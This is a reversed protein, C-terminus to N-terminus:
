IHDFGGAVIGSLTRGLPPAATPARGRLAYVVELVEHELDLAIAPREGQRDRWVVVRRYPYSGADEPLQDLEWRWEDRRRTIGEGELLALDAVLSFLIDDGRRESAVFADIPANVAAGGPMWARPPLAEALWATLRAFAPAPDATPELIPSVDVDHDALVAALAALREDRTALFRQLNEAAMAPTLRKAPGVHAPLNPPYHALAAALPGDGARRRGFLTDFLGAM